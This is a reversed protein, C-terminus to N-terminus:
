LMVVRCIEMARRKTQMGLLDVRIRTSGPLSTHRLLWRLLLQRFGAPAIIPQCLNLSFHHSPYGKKHRSGDRLQVCYEKGVRVM